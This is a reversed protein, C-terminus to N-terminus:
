DSEDENMQMDSLWTYKLPWQKEGATMVSLEAKGTSSKSNLVSCNKGTLNTTKFMHCLQM